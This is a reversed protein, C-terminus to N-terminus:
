FNRVCISSNVFHYYFIQHFDIPSAYMGSTPKFSLMRLIVQKILLMALLYGIYINSTPNSIAFNRGYTEVFSKQESIGVIVNLFM